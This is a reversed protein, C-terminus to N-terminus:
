GSREIHRHAQCELQEGEFAFFRPEKFPSMYIDPHQSLYEALSATGAKSTGIVIFTPMKM